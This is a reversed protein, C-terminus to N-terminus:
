DGYKKLLDDIKAQGANLAPAQNEYQSTDAPDRGYNARIGDINMKRLKVARENLKKIEALRQQVVGKDNINEFLENWARQADGDTQVGTNLRLSDNRLKELTSKFSAKNRSADNSFGTMNRAKDVLNDIPGFDLKGSAIQKEIAGLDAQIGSAIGIADLEAQQMKLAATPMPKAATAAAAAADAKPKQKDIQLRERSVGLQGQNVALNGRSTSEQAKNSRVTEALKREDQDFGRAKWEQEVRQAQTLAQQQANAIYAPDFQEPIESVDIGNSALMQRNLSYSQQDRSGAIANNLLTLKERATAFADKEAARREKEIEANGKEYSQAEKLRGAKVLSQYNLGKDDGFGSVVARMQNEDAIGRQYQDMKAQEAALALRNQEGQMRENDYDQVSKVPQAFQRYISSDIAM